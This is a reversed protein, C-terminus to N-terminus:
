NKTDYEDKRTFNFLRKFLGPKNHIPCIVTPVKEKFFIEEVTETCGKHAILGSEACVTQKVLGPPMKYWNESVYQPIVNILDAWVPLAAASGTSYISDGNDFGVWVLALIDPTYGVFWADRFNNTTGTKGAVPWSIGRSILSRATGETVVSRLM